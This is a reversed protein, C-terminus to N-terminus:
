YIDTIKLWPYKNNVYTQLMEVFKSFGLFNVEEFYPFYVYWLYKRSSISTILVSEGTEKDYFGFYGERNPKSRYELNKFKLDFIRFVSKELQSETLLYNM